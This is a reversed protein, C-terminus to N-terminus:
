HVPFRKRLHEGYRLLLWPAPILVCALFGLLSNGWGLGLSEYMPFAALPLTAGLISRVLSNSALASAAYTAFSDVLYMQLPQM